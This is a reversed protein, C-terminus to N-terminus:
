WFYAVGYRLAKHNTKKKKIRGIATIVCDAVKRALICVYARM